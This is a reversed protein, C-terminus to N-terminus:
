YLANSTGFSPELTHLISRLHTIMNRMGISSPTALRICAFGQNLQTFGCKVEAIQTTATLLTSKWDQLRPHHLWFTAIHLPEGQRTLLRWKEEPGLHMRERTLLVRDRYLDLQNTLLNWELAEGHAIRGPTLIELFCCKSTPALRIETKQHLTSGRQSISLDPYLDLSAGDALDFQQSIVAKRNLDMTHIRTAGPQNLLVKANRALRVQFNIKDGAFFGATPNVVQALLTHGNWYTKGVHALGGTRRKSLITKGDEQLTFELELQSNISHANLM